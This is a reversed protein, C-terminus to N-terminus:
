VFHINFASVLYFAKILQLFYLSSRYFNFSMILFIFYFYFLSLLVANTKYLAKRSEWLCKVIEMDWIFPDHAHYIDYPNHYAFRYIAM